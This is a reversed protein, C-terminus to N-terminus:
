RHSVVELLEMAGRAFRDPRYMDEAYTAPWVYRGPTVARVLYAIRFPELGEALNIAAVFRDDRLEVHAPKSM